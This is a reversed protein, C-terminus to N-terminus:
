QYYTEFCKLVIFFNCSRIKKKFILLKKSFRPFIHGFFEKEDSKLSFFKQYSESSKLTFFNLTLFFFISNKKTLNKELPTEGRSGAHKQISSEKPFLNASLPMEAFFRLIKQMTMKKRLKLIKKKFDDSGYGFFKEDFVSSFKQKAWM